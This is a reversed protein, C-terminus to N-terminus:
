WSSNTILTLIMLDFPCTARMVHLILSFCKYSFPLPLYWVAFRLIHPLINNVQININKYSWIHHGCYDSDQNRVLRPIEKSVSHYNDEWYHNQEMSCSSIKILSGICIGSYKKFVCWCKRNKNYLTKIRDSFHRKKRRVRTAFCNRPLSGYKDSIHRCTIMGAGYKPYKLKSDSGPSQNEQRHSQNSRQKRWPFHYFLILL